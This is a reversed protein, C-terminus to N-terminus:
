RRGEKKKDLIKEVNFVGNHDEEEEWDDHV